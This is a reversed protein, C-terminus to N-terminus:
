RAASRRRRGRWSAKSCGCKTYRPPSTASLSGASVARRCAVPRRCPTPSPPVATRAAAPRRRCPTPPVRTPQYPRRTPPVRDTARAYAPGAGAGARETPQPQEDVGADGDAATGADGDAGSRGATGTAGAGAARQGAPRVARQVAAVTGPHLEFRAREFWQM